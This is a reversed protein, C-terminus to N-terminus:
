DLYMCAFPARVRQESAFSVGAMFCGLLFTTRSYYAGLTLAAAWVGLLALWLASSNKSGAPDAEEVQASTIERPWLRATFRPILIAFVTSVVIFSLSSILPILASWIGDTPGWVVEEHSNQQNKKESLAISSIMALLILSAVDDIMAACCITQGLRTKLLSMDQMLKTAMGIATSSLATGAALAELMSFESHLVGGLIGVCALVPLATGTLAIAFAKWGVARLTAIDINLGGELVLLLLGLQGVATLAPIFPICDLGPPGLVMGVVIEAILAPCGVKEVVAGALWISGFLLVLYAVQIVHPEDENAM